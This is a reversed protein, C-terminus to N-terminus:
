GCASSLAKACTLIDPNLGFTQSGWFNGTRGFGNIVEDAVLLVDYKKLVKQIAEYYGKPPIIVGGAGLAPECFMAAVEEAGGEKVILEELEKARREVFQEETEGPLQEKYYHPSGTHKIQPLPM